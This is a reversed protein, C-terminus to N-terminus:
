KNFVGQPGPEHLGEVPFGAPRGLEVSTPAPRVVTHRLRVLLNLAATHLYLRFFNALFRPDRLRHAALESKLEKNRNESEGRMAYEDYVAQPQVACGPRNTVV